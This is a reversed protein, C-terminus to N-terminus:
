PRVEALARTLVRHLAHAEAKTLTNTSESSPGAIRICIEDAAPGPEIEVHIENGRENTITEGEAM